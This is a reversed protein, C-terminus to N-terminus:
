CVKADIREFDDRRNWTAKRAGREWPGDPYRKERSLELPGAEAM